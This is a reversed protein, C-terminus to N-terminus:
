TSPASGTKQREEELLIRRLVKGVLTEPLADRFEIQKPVRYGSLGNAPDKCWSMIEEPTASMGDKLVIFAKVAEGTRED